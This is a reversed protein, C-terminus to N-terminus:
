RDAKLRDWTRVTVIAPWLTFAVAAVAVDEALDTFRDLGSLPINLNRWPYRRAFTFVDLAVAAGAVSYVAAIRHKTM